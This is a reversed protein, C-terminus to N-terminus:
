LRRITCDKYRKKFQLLLIEAEKRENFNGVCLIIWNGKPLVMPSLGKKRLEQAEKQAFSRSKYSALQITYGKKVLEQATQPEVQPRQERIIATPPKQTVPTSEPISTVAPMDRKVAQVASNGVKLTKGREVGLSFSIICLLTMGIVFLINKEYGRFRKFFPSSDHRKFRVPEGTKSFLELQPNYPREM